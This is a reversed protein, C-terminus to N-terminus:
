LQGHINSSPFSSSFYSDKTVKVELPSPTDALPQLFELPSESQNSIKVNNVPAPALELVDTTTTTEEQTKNHFAAFLTEFTEVNDITKTDPDVRKVSSITNLEETIEIEREGVEFELVPLPITPSVNIVNSEFESPEM